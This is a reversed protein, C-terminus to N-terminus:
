PTLARISSSKQRRRCPQPSRSFSRPWSLSSEFFRAPPAGPMPLCGSHVKDGSRDRRSPKARHERDYGVAMALARVPAVGSVHERGRCGGRQDNQIRSRRLEWEAWVNLQAVHRVPGHEAPLDVDNAEEQRGLPCALAQLEAGSAARCGGWALVHNAPDSPAASSKSGGGAPKGVRQRLRLRPVGRATLGRRRGLPRDPFM